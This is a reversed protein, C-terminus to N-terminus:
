SNFGQPGLPVPYLVTEASRIQYPGCPGRLHIAPLDCHRQQRDYNSSREFPRSVFFLSRVRTVTSDFRFTREDDPYLLFWRRISREVTSVPRPIRSAYGRLVALRQTIGEDSRSAWVCVACSSHFVLRVPSSDLLRTPRPSRRVSDSARRCRASSEGGGTGETRSRRRMREHKKERGRGSQKAHRARARRRWVFM